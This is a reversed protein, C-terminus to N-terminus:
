AHSVLAGDTTTGTGADDLLAAYLRALSAVHEKMTMVPPIGSRLREWVKRDTAADRMVEALSEADGRRFYLGNLGDTVKESMGGMDSCIVPRGHQFAELVTLPGTEWWISPVVVWDIQAMLSPLERPQYQGILTVSDGARDLLKEFDERFEAPATEINAGHIRITGDFDEGLREVARLLVDAGKYATFQGFFGFRNREARKGTAAVRDVPPRGHPTHRIKERPIGWDVYRELAYASPTVFLDVLELHSKIFRERMFFEQQSIEPFCEHCRRPSQERCLQNSGTRIMQGDRFCIPLYEHFTYVIRAEPLTNRTVRLVDYGLFMTQQFHVIDPKIELLFDRYFRTLATKQPSRGYLWNYDSAETYFLYQDPDDEHVLTIPRGEHYRTAISFPPGSRALFVADFEGATRIEEFVELAFGEAGGPRISPHNAGVFLIKPKRGGDLM